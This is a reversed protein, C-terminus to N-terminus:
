YFSIEVKSRFCYLILIIFNELKLHSRVKMTKDLNALWEQFFVGTMWAKTNNRYLFGHAQGSKKDFCRRKKAKGIFFPQLKDSGDANATLAITIRSQM